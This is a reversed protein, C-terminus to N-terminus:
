KWYISVYEAETNAPSVVLRNIRRLEAPSWNGYAYAACFSRTVPDIVFAFGKTEDPVLGRRALTGRVHAEWEAASAAVGRNDVKKYANGLWIAQEQEENDKYTRRFFPNGDVDRYYWHGFRSGNPDVGNNLPTGVGDHQIPSAARELLQENQAFARSEALLLTFFLFCGWFPM